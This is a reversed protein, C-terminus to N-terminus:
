QRARFIAGPDTRGDVVTTGPLSRWEDLRPDDLEECIILVPAEWGPTRKLKTVLELMETGIRGSPDCVLLHPEQSVCGALTVLLEIRGPVPTARQGAARLYRLIEARWPERGSAVIVLPTPTPASM